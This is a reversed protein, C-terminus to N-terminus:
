DAGKAAKGLGELLGLRLLGGRAAAIRGDRSVAYALPTDFLMRRTETDLSDDAIGVHMVIGRDALMWRAAEYEDPPVLTRLAVGEAAAAQNFRELEALSKRCALCGPTWFVVVSPANEAARLAVPAASLTALDLEDAAAPVAVALACALAPAALWRVLRERGKGGSRGAMRLREM